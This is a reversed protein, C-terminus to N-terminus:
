LIEAVAGRDTIKTIVVKKLEGERAGEAHVRVYNETYGGDEEFLVEAEKGLQKELFIKEARDAAALLEATRRKKIEAPTDGRKYAVTGERPSYPFVHVRSFGAEEVISLSKQFDEETEGTFGVIIDTTVAANEFYERILACKDLYEGRTYHRNMARLVSDSGSQLSLHFHPMVNGAARIRELFERTIIHPELSGLRIRLPLERMAYLLGGLDTDGDRYSSIDIGTLVIEKATVCEAENLISQVSRSRSRGRLYPIICYSCFNDCGDQIRLFARTKSQKPAPLESFVREDSDPYVGEKGLLALVKDKGQAGSVFLVGEKKVFSEPAHAAACGFVVVPALPNFKRLRAIAQRSKKEAEKTVACTNLLYLDAACLEDTVEYGLKELGSWLSMSEVENMKCGLTFVCAKM